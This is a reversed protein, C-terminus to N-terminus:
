LLVKKLAKYGKRNFNAGTAHDTIIDRYEVGNEMLINIQRQINQSEVSVRAYGYTKNIEENDSITDEINEQLLEQSDTLIEETNGENNNVEDVYSLIDENLNKM